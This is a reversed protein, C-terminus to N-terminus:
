KIQSQKNQMQHCPSLPPIFSFCLIDFLSSPWITCVIGQRHFTSVRSNNVRKRGAASTYVCVPPPVGCLTPLSLSIKHTLRNDQEM